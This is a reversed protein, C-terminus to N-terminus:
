QSQHMLILKKIHNQFHYFYKAFHSIFEEFNFDGDFAEQMLAQNSEM